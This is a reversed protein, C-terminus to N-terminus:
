SVGEEDSDPFAQRDRRHGGAAVAGPHVPWPPPTSGAAGADAEFLQSRADAAVPSAYETHRSRAPWDTHRGPPCGIGLRDTM